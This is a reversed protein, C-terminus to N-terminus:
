WCKTVYQWETCSCILCMTKTKM